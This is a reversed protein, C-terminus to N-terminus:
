TVMGLVYMRPRTAPLAYPAAAGGVAPDRAGQARRVLSPRVVQPVQRLAVRLQARVMQDAARRQRELMQERRRAAAESPTVSPRVSPPRPSARGDTRGGGATRTPMERAAISVAISLPRILAADDRAHARSRPTTAHPPTSLAREVLRDTPGVSAAPRERAPPARDSPPLQYLEAEIERLLASAAGAAAEADDICQCIRSIPQARSAAVADGGHARCEQWRQLRRENVASIRRAARLQIEAENMREMVTREPPPQLAAETAFGCLPCRPAVALWRAICREHYLHACALARVKSCSESCPELCIACITPAQADPSACAGAADPCAWGGIADLPACAGAAVPSSASAEPCPM